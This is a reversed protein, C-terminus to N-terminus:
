WHKENETIKYYFDTDNRLKYREDSRYGIIWVIDDGVCFLSIQQKTFGDIKQNNFFDSLKQKGKSGLPHFADGHQWHRITVPFVLQEEPLYLTRNDKTFVPKETSPKREVQFWQQLEDLNHIVMQEQKQQSFPQILYTDRNVLLTHTASHYQTGTQPLQLLEAAITPVFNYEQLLESLILESDSNQALQAADIELIEGDHHCLTEIQQNMQRRYFNYQQQFLRRNRSMTEILSPNLVQLQPIVNARVRNRKIHEDSNTCDIAFPIAHQRAYLRIEEASFDLLPRIIKGNTEPISTMGKLGTGRVLNLLMTEAADNAHHATVIHDFDRGIEAFWDYRLQRAMMEMSLDSHQVLTPTDFEQVFLPMQWAEALQQVLRMDRNSDDGRLHFNCHAIACDLGTQRFLFAMVNSDAGGSVALLYRHNVPNGVLKSLRQLFRTMM